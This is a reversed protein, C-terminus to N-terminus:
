PSDLRGVVELLFELAELHREVEALSGGWTYLGHGRILFAHLGPTSRLIEEVRHADAHWDQSNEIIPIWEEHDHSQVGALGKLLEYNRIAVGGRRAHRVSALTGWLSHTHAVFAPRVSRVVALHLAAEASPRPGGSIPDGGEEIRLVQEAVMSGKNVGSPSIALVLPNWSAVASFNGSTAPTWGRNHAVRGLQTVAVSLHEWGGAKVSTEKGDSVSSRNRHLLQQTEDM